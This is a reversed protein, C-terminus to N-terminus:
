ITTRLIIVREFIPSITKDKCWKTNQYMYKWLRNVVYLLLFIHYSINCLMNLLNFHILLHFISSFIYVLLCLLVCSAAVKRSSLMTFFKGIIYSFCVILCTRNESLEILYQYDTYSIGNEFTSILSMLDSSFLIIFTYCIIM